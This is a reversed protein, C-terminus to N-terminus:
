SNVEGSHIARSAGSTSPSRNVRTRTSAATTPKAPMRTIARGQVPSPVAAKPTPWAVASAAATPKAKLMMNVLRSLAVSVVAEIM